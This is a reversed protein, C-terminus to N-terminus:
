AKGAPPRSSDLWDFELRGGAFWVYQNRLVPWNLNFTTSWAPVFQPYYAKDALYRQIDFVQAQRKQVDTEAKQKVIMDELAPDGNEPDRGNIDFGFFRSGGKTFLNVLGTVAPDGRYNFSMGNFKGRGNFVTPIWGSNYDVINRKARIGVENFMGLVVEIQKPFDSGYEGSTFYVAPVDLGGAYGAASLLKKAEDPNFKLYKANPGFDASQPNLWWGTYSQTSWSSNYFVQVPLGQQKLKDLEYFTSVFAEEDLAMRLSQRVRQDRFPSGELWGLPMLGNLSTINEVYFMDLQSVDKKTSIIDSHNIAPFAYFNGARFQALQTSYETVLPYEAKDIFQRDTAKADFYNPNRVYTASVSPQYDSVMWSGSGRMEKNPDYGGDAEKPFVLMGPLLTLLDADPQALKISVTSSDIATVSDIAANKNAAYSLQARNRGTSDFKKWSYVVDNADLIRGNTPPRPDFGGNPRLKFIVQLGGNQVEWSGAASAEVEGSPAPKFHGVKARVLGLYADTPIGSTASQRGSVPDWSPADAGAYGKYTGGRKAQATTDEVKAVLGSTDKPQGNDNSSTASKTGSGGCAVAAAGFGLAMAGGVFRRRGLQGARVRAWYSDTMM